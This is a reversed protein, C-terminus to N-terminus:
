WYRNALFQWLWDGKETCAIFSAVQLHRVGVFDPPTYTETGDAADQTYPGESGHCIYKNKFRSFAYASRSSLDLYPM